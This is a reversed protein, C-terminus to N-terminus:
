DLLLKVCKSPLGLSLGHLMFGVLGGLLALLSDLIGGCRKSGDFIVFGHPTFKFLLMLM